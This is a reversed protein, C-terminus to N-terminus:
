SAFNFAKAMEALPTCRQFVGLRETEYLKLGELAM